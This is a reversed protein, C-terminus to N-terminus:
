LITESFNDVHEGWPLDAKEMLEKISVACPEQWIALKELIEPSLYALRMMRSVFRDTVNEAKAIDHITAAEGSELKRRWAWARGLAKLIHPDQICSQIHPETTSAVIRPRGNKRKLELPIFLTTNDQNVRM